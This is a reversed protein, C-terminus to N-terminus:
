RTADASKINIGGVPGVREGQEGDLARGREVRRAGVLCVGVLRAGRAHHVADAHISVFLDAGVRASQVRVNLPVFFDADRTMMARM